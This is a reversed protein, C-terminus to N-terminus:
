SVPLRMSQPLRANVEVLQRLQGPIGQAFVFGQELSHRAVTFAGVTQACRARLRHLQALRLPPMATGHEVIVERAHRAAEGVDAPRRHILALEMRRQLVVAQWGPDVDALRGDLVATTLARVDRESRRLDASWTPVDPRPGERATKLVVTHALREANRIALLRAAAPDLSRRDVLAYARDLSAKAWVPQRGVALADHRAIVGLDANYMEYAALSGQPLLEASWRAATSADLQDQDNLVEYLTRLAEAADRATGGRLADDAHLRAATVAETQGPVPVLLRERRTSLDPAQTARAAEAARRRRYTAQREANSRPSEVGRQPAARRHGPPVLLLPRPATLDPGTSPLRAAVARAVRGVRERGTTPKTDTRRGHLRAQWAALEEASVVGDAHCRAALEDLWDLVARRGNLLDSSTGLLGAPDTDRYGRSSPRLAAWRLEALVLPEDWVPMPLRYPPSSRRRLRRARPVAPRPVAPRAKVAGGM